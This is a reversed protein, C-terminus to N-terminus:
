TTQGVSGWMTIAKEPCVQICRGCGICKTKDVVHRKGAEGTITGKVPCVDVCKGCGTCKTNINAKPRSKIHDSFCNSPCKYASALFNEQSTYDMVPLNNEMWISGDVEAAKVCLTCATCGVSCYKKVKAGRDHNNCAIFINRSSPIMEIINRPCAAVCAKCGTCKKPDVEAVGNDNIHIADFNCAAVCSGLGFCGYLCEKSGHSVLEAANCDALGDYVARNRAEKLGGKCKVVATYEEVDDADVGMVAAVKEATEAGGAVCGSVSAEGAVVAKAFQMCGPYGCAGCNTQPLVDDVAQVTKDETVHFLKASLSLLFGFFLGVSGVIMIQSIM